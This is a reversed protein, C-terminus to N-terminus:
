RTLQVGLIDSEADPDVTVAGTELESRFFGQVCQNQPKDCDPDQWNGAVSNYKQAVFNIGTFEFAALGALSYVAKGSDEIVTFIALTRTRAKKNDEDGGHYEDIAAAISDADAQCDNPVNAGPDSVGELDGDNLDLEASCGEADTNLWQFNGPSTGDFGEGTGCVLDPDDPDSSDADEEDDEDDTQNGAGAGSNNGGGGGSSNGGGGGPPGLKIPIEVVDNLDDGEIPGDYVDECIVVPFAGDIATVAGYIASAQARVESADAGILGAFWHNLENAGDDNVLTTVTVEGAQAGLVRHELSEADSAGDAANADAYGDATGLYPDGLAGTGPQADGDVIGRAIDQAVALSGADAGSQLQAREWFLAGVDIALAAFGLLVVALVAVVVAVAGEEGDRRVARRIM